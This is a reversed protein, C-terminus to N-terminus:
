GILRSQGNKFAPRDEVTGPTHNEPRAIQQVAPWAAEGSLLDERARQWEGFRAVYQRRQVRDIKEETIPVTV